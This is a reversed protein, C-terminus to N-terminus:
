KERTYQVKPTFFSAMVEPQKAAYTDLGRDDLILPHSHLGVWRRAVNGAETTVATADCHTLPGLGVRPNLTKTSLNAALSVCHFWCLLITIDLLGSMPKQSDGGGHPNPASRGPESDQGTHPSGAMIM